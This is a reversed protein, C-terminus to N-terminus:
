LVGSKVGKYKSLEEVRLPDCDVQFFKELSSDSIQHEKIEIQQDPLSYLIRTELTVSANGAIQGFTLEDPDAYVPRTYEGKITFTIEPMKPDSTVITVSQKFAGLHKKAQWSVVVTTSQGPALESDTIKSVTCGCSTTGPN